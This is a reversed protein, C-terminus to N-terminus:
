HRAVVIRDVGALDQWLREMRLGAQTFLHSIDFAQGQGAEVLVLGGRVVLKPAAQAIIRYAALGDRGGDLALRPEFRAVEPMLQAIADAEIYPPNSILLDFPGALKEEWGPQRWDGKELCVREAVGLSEANAQAVDLADASVEMGVGRANPFERMLTLLLCGSGVGLDVIRLPRARDPLLAVAAEVLTESDPRPVLVAPSVKFTLGWFEREGLIYAMPERQVRRATLTRLSAVVHAPVPDRGRAVLQETSLGCAKALLLRAEFRANDIGATTLAV